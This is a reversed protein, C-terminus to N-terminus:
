TQLNIFGTFVTLMDAMFGIMSRRIFWSVYSCPYTRGISRLLNSGCLNNAVIWPCFPLWTSAGIAALDKAAKQAVKPCLDWLWIGYDGLFVSSKALFIPLLIIM